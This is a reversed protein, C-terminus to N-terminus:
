HRSPQYDDSSSSSSSRDRSHFSRMSRYRSPNNRHRNTRTRKSGRSDRENKLLELERKLSQIEQYQKSPLYDLDSPPREVHEHHESYTEEENELEQLQRLLQQRKLEKESLGPKIDLTEPEVQKRLEQPQEQRLVSNAVSRQELIKNIDTRLLRVDEALDETAVPEHQLQQVQNRLFHLEERLRQTEGATAETVDGYDHLVTQVQEALQAVRGDLSQNEQACIRRLSKDDVQVAPQQAHEAQAPPDQSPEAQNEQPLNEQRDPRKYRLSRQYNLSGRPLTGSVSRTRRSGASVVNTRSTGFINAIERSPGSRVTRPTQNATARGPAPDQSLTEQRIDAPATPIENIPQAAAASSVIDSHHEEAIATEQQNNNAM